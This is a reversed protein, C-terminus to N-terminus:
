HFSGFTYSHFRRAATFARSGMVFALVPLPISPPGRRHDEPHPIAVMEGDEDDFKPMHPRGGEKRGVSPRDQNAPKNGPGMSPRDQNAPKNGPGMSPRDQNAPKNGPGMSPRDQNAPKNGPGMSPRDQNAPKNGPGMSPRDQKAPEVDKGSSPVGMKKSETETADGSDINREEPAEGSAAIAVITKKKM